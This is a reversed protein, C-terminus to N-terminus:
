LSLVAKVMCAERAPTMFCTVDQGNEMPQGEARALALRITNENQTMMM